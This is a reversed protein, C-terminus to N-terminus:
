RENIFIKLTKGEDQLSLKVNNKSKNNVYSRGKTDIVEIRPIETYPVEIKSLEHLAQLVTVRNGNKDYLELNEM